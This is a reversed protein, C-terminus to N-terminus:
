KPWILRTCETLAGVSSRKTLRVSLSKAGASVQLLQDFQLSLTAGLELAHDSFQVATMAAVRTLCAWM